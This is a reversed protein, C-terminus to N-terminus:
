TMGIYVISYVLNRVTELDGSAIRQEPTDGQLRRKPTSMWTAANPILEAIEMRLADAEALAPQIAKGTAPGM